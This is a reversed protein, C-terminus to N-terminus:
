PKTSRLRTVEQMLAKVKELDVYDDTKLGTGVIAGDVVSLIKAANEPTLGSGILVPFDGVARKAEALDDLQPEEGTFNGTVIIADAGAKMAQIASQAITKKELMKAYKVQIDAMILVDSANIKERYKLLAPADIAMEVGDEERAMRDVFYDTRIFRTGSAKAVALSANPDNLLIEAGVVVTKAARKVEQTIVAMAAITEPGVHVVHPRDYENETMVGDVGGEELARLDKLAKAIAQDMGPANQFGLLPPLHIMGIIPFKNPFVTSFSTNMVGNYGTKLGRSATLEQRM